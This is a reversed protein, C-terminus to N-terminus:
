APGCAFITESCCSTTVPLYIPRSCDILNQRM